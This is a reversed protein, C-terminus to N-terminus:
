KHFCIKDISNKLSKLNVENEWSPYWVLESCDQWNAFTVTGEEGIYSDNQVFPLLLNRLNKFSQPSIVGVKSLSYGVEIPTVFNLQGAQLKGSGFNKNYVTRIFINFQVQSFRAQVKSYTQADVEGNDGFMIVRTAKTMEIIRTITELKHDRGTISDSGHYADVKFRFNALLNLHTKEMLWKPANSVFHFETSSDQALISEYLESMGMFGSFEDSAYDFKKSLKVAALKVTDDVDSIVITKASLSSAFGLFVVFLLISKYSM